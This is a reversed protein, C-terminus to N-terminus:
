ADAGSERQHHDIGEANDACGQRHSKGVRNARKGTERFLLKDKFCMVVRMMRRTMRMVRSAVIVLVLVDLLRHVLRRRGNIATMALM